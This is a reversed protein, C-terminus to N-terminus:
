SIEIFDFTSLIIPTSCILVKTKSIKNIKYVGNQEMIVTDGVEHGVVMIGTEGTDHTVTSSENGLSHM